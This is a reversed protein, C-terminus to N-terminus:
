GCVLFRMDWTSRLSQKQIGCINLAVNSHVHYVRLCTQCKTQLSSHTPTTYLTPPLRISLLAHLVCVEWTNESNHCKWNGFNFVNIGIVFCYRWFYVREGGVGRVWITLSSWWCTSMKTVCPIKRIYKQFIYINM